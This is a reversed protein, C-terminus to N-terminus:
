ARKRLIFGGAALLAGAGALVGLPLGTRPLAIGSETAGYSETPPVAGTSGSDGAGAVDPEQVVPDPPPEPAPPTDPGTATGQDEDSPVEGFPDSYQEDGASQALAGSPLALMLLMLLIAAPRPSM